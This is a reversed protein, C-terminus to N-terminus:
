DVTFAQSAKDVPLLEVQSTLQLFEEKCSCSRRIEWWLIERNLIDWVMSYRELAPFGPSSNSRLHWLQATRSAQKSCFKARRRLPVLFVDCIAANEARMVDFRRLAEVLDIDLEVTKTTKAM